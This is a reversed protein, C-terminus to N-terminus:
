MPRPLAATLGGRLRSVMWPGLRGSRLTPWHGVIGSPSGCEPLTSIYRAPPRGGPSWLQSNQAYSGVFPRPSARARIRRDARFSPAAAGPLGTVKQSPWRVSKAVALPCIWSAASMRAATWTTKAESRGSWRSRLEPGVVIAVAFSVTSLSCQRQDHSPTWIFAGDVAPRADCRDSDGGSIRWCIKLERDRCNCSIM